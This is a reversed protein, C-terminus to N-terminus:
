CSATGSSLDITCTSSSKAGDKVATTVSRAFRGGPFTILSQATMSTSGTTEYTITVSGSSPYGPADAPVSVNAASHMSSVLSPSSGDSLSESAASGGSLVYTNTRLGSMTVDTHGTLAGEVTGGAFAETGSYDMVLRVSAVNSMDLTHQSQGADDSLWFSLTHPVGAIAFAPCAFGDIGADYSCATPDIMTKAVGSESTALSVATAGAFRALGGSSMQLLISSLDASSAAVAHTADAPAIPANAGEASCATLSLVLIFVAVLSSRDNTM